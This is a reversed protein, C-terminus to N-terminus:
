RNVVVKRSFNYDNYGHKRTTVMNPIWSNYGYITDMLEFEISLCSLQLDFEPEFNIPFPIM